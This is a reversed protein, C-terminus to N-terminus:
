VDLAIRNFISTAISRENGKTLRLRDPRYSYSITVDKFDDTPDRNFFTNWAHKFRTSLPKDM